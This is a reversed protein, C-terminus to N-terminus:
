IITFGISHVLPDGSVTFYLLYAGPSLGMGKSKLTFTYLAPNNPGTQPNFAFTSGAPFYMLATPDSLPAIGVATV